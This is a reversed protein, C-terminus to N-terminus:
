ASTTFRFISPDVYILNYLIIEGFFIFRIYDFTTSNSRITFSNLYICLAHRGTIYM